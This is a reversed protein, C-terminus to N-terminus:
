VTAMKVPFLTTKKWGEAVQEVFGPGPSLWSKAYSNAKAKTVKLATALEETTFVDPLGADAALRVVRGIKPPRQRPAGLVATTTKVQVPQLPELQSLNELASIAATLDSMQKQLRQLQPEIQKKQQELDEITKKVHPKM